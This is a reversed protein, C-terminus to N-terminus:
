GRGFATAKQQRPLEMGMQRLFGKEESATKCNWPKLMNKYPKDVIFFQGM